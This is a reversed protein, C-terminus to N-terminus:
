RNPIVFVTAKGTNNEFVEASTVLVRSTDASLVVRIQIRNNERVIDDANLALSIMKRPEITEIPFGKLVNGEGDLFTVDTIRIAM